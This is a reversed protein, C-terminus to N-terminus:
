ESSSSQEPVLDQRSKLNRNKVRDAAELGAKAARNEPDLELAKKYAEEAEDFMFLRSYAFGLNSYATAKGPAMEVAVKFEHLAENLM